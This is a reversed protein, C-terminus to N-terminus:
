ELTRAPAGAAVELRVRAWQADLRAASLALRTQQQTSLAGIVDLNNVQGLRYDEAQARANDQALQAAKELAAVVSVSSLLDQHASRAELQAGRASSSLAQRRSELQARRERVQARTEGGSFLPLSGTITADWTVESTFSPPRRFYYNADASISPWRQRAAVKMNLEAAEVDLRRSDVDPRRRASELLGDLGPPLAAPPLPRASVGVELGTLFGLRFQAVQEHARSQELQALNQALQSEAALLESARARGVRRFERLDRVRERTIGVLSERIGIEDQAALLDLFARAVDQYLLQKAREVLREASRSTDKASRHALYERFGSFLPQRANVWGQERNPQLFQNSVGQPVHQLAESGMLAVRPLANSWIQAARALAEEYGAGAIAVQESRALALRYAEELGLPRASQAPSAQAVLPSALAAGLLLARM